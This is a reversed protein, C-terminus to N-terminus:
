KLSKKKLHFYSEVDSITGHKITLYHQNIIFM